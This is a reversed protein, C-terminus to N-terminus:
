ITEELVAKFSAATFMQTWTKAHAQEKWKSPCVTVREQAKQTKTQYCSRELRSVLMEHAASRRCNNERQPNDQCTKTSGKSKVSLKTLWHNSEKKKLIVRVIGDRSNVPKQQSFDGMLLSNCKFKNSKKNSELSEEKDKVKLLRM